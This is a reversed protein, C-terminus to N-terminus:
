QSHCIQKKVEAIKQFSAVDIYHDAHVNTGMALSTKANMKSPRATKGSLHLWNAETSLQIKHANSSSVGAGPMVEIRGNAQKVLKELLAIGQEASVQQGSTLLTHCGHEILVELATAPDPCYDFARHFTIQMGKAAECLQALQAQNISGDRNLVGIVVGNMGHCKMAHIDNLMIELEDNSFVFDGARPRIMANVPVTSQKIILECLGLSPTLGGVSLASCLEIRDAGAKVAIDFSEINDICIEIFM